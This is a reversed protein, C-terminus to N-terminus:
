ALLEISAEEVSVINSYLRSNSLVDPLLPFEVCAFSKTGFLVGSSYENM